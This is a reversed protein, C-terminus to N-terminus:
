KNAYDEVVWGEPIGSTGSSLSTMASNKVFTGSSAVGNVWSYLCNSASIDTALM